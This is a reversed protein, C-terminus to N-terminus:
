EGEETTDVFPVIRYEISLDGPLSKEDALHVMVTSNAGLHVIRTVSVFALIALLLIWWWKRPLSGTPEWQDVPTENQFQKM